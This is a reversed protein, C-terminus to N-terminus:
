NGTVHPPVPPRVFSRIFKYRCQMHQTAQGYVFKDVLVKNKGGFRKTSFSCTQIRQLQGSSVLGCRLFGNGLFINNKFGSVWMM